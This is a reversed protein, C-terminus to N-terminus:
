GAGLAEDFIQRVKEQSERLDALLTAPDPRGLANALRRLIAAPVAAADFPGEIVLRQWHFADNLLTRAEGLSRAHGDEILGAKAAEVIADETSLGVLSPYAAGHALTIAQALFDIDTLGGAALKVDWPDQDGKARAILDRMARVEAAVKAPDRPLAVIGAIAASVEARFEEDGAIPRVRTLAMHEWLEAESRQYSRFGDFQV